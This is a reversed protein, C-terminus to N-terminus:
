DREEGWKLKKPSLRYELIGHRVGAQRRPINRAVVKREHIPMVRLRDWIADKDLGLFQAVCVSSYMYSEDDSDFWREAELRIERNDSALEIIANTFMGWLLEVEGSSFKHEEQHLTVDNEWLSDPEVVDGKKRSRSKGSLDFEHIIDIRCYDAGASWIAAFRQRRFVAGSPTTRM